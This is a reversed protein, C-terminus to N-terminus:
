YYEREFYISAGGLASAGRAFQADLRDVLPSGPKGRKLDTAHFKVFKHGNVQAAAILADRVAPTSSGGGTLIFEQMQAPELGDCFRTVAEILRKGFEDLCAQISERDDDGGVFGLGPVRYSRGEGLVVQLVAMFEKRSTQELWARKAGPFAKPLMAELDSAGLRESTARLAFGAGIVPDYPKGGTDVHLSAIDTTFAGVDIVLARYTPYNPDGKLVTNLPGKGLMEGLNIRAARSLLNAGKTLVGVANSEPETVFLQDPHLPWGARRLAERLLKCASHQAPDDGVLAPVAVRVPFDEFKLGPADLKACASLVQTRLWGFFQLAVRAANTQRHAEVSVAREEPRAFLTRAAETMSRLAAVHTSPVFYKAALAAFEDSQLLADLPPLAPNDLAPAPDLFLDKKFNTFVHIGSGAKIGTARDGFEFRPKAGRQDMAVVTPVCLDFEAGECALLTSSATPDRRLAVKTYASGFDICFVREAM